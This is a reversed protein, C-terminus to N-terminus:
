STWAFRGPAIKNIEKMGKGTTHFWVSINGYSKGHVPAGFELEARHPAGRNGIQFDASWARPELDWHASFIADSSEM